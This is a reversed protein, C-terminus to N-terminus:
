SAKAGCKPCFKTDATLAAGCNKCGFPAKATRGCHPCFTAEEPLESGCGECKMASPTGEALGLPPIRALADLLRPVTPAEAPHPELADLAAQTRLIWEATLTGCRECRTETGSWTFVCPKRKGDSLSQPCTLLSVLEAVSVNVIETDNPM